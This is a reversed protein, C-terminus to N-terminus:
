PIWSQHMRVLILYACIVPILLFHSVRLHREYNSINVDLPLINCAFAFGVRRTGKLM